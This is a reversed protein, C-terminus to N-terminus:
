RGQIHHTETPKNLNDRYAEASRALLDAEGALETDGIARAAAGFERAFDPNDRVARHLASVIDRSHVLTTATSEHDVGLREALALATSRVEASARLALAEAGRRAANDRVDCAVRLSGFMAAVLDGGSEGELPKHTRPTQHAGRAHRYVAARSLNAAAGYSRHIANPPEGALLAGDILPRASSECVSCRRGVPTSQM